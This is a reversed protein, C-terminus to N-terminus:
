RGSHGTRRLIARIADRTTAANAISKHVESMGALVAAKDAASGGVTGSTKRNEKPTAKVSKRYATGSLDLIEAPYDTETKAGPWSLSSIARWSAPYPNQSTMAQMIKVGAGSSILARFAAYFAEMSPFIAYATNLYKPAGM